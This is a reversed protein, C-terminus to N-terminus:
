FEYRATVQMAWQSEGRNQKTTMTFPDNVSYVMKGDPTTGAYNVFKRVQGGTGDSFGIEDIRGWSKKILNGVNFIDLSLSGKQKGFFGPVEQSLRVDFSNVFPSRSNNRGVVSGKSNRLASESEVISWFKAEAAVSSAAVTQGPLRFLVEGSGQGKPIYLLDNGAVGDGNADNNFTWSYPKGDRGEYFMGFSTKYKGFFAQSWNLNASFRNRVTYVSNAAVVENPNYVPRNAWQSFATSSTLPSVETANTRTYAVGWGFGGVSPRQLSLTVSDGGGLKTSEVITVDNFANNRQARSTPSVCTLGTTAGPTAGGAGWCNTSQAAANWFVQRGDVPNTATPAGLNLHRYALGQKTKTHLWEAGANLGYWPLEVDYALNMKWVSPQAVGPAIFDVNQRASAALAPQKNPDPNYTVANAGTCNNLTCEYDNVVVGTNQFPNAFWVTAAAGQFLGLGGRIQSKRKDVADFAYNFGVRPQLLSKGDPTYTNDYGFASSAVANAIPKDGLGISDMRLGAMVSLKRNITWTDQVFVGLNTFSMNAAADNLTRGAQPLQIRYASAKGAAFLAIPDAGQFTYQGKARRVFANFVDNLEYDVGAKIEHDGWVLNGAVYGNTTNTELRNFHRTEETGFRLTRNGTAAGAPSPDTFVLQVEPMDSKNLPVSLYDRKSLKVETSFNDTWDGFWQAVVSEISKATTYWRSDLSLTTASFGPAIPQAQETKTYRINARHNDNINWDLKLLTDKVTLQDSSPIGGIDIGYVNKAITRAQQIQAETIGVNTLNSGMTGFQPSDRNSKLEEYSAFFFLKDKLIPGGLTFGLTSDHFAPPEFYSNTTRNYRNGSMEKDRYVGYVSGKFENTGSKTVANINAGTYGAQTVDYNSVNVQVAQIADISIPQKITPLGNAELGFTDNIRVGDITLANYRTNQGGASIEGREKDTQALRPDTRAYDQLSRNLSAYADLEQRGLSTGTGMTTSNFKSATASGTTVVTELVSASRLRLEVSLTEALGLYVGTQFERGDGKNATISYPGGVRLGRALFRGEADATTTTSSGSETHLIVVTAGGAPRGDATLVQGSVAATTNQAMAPAAAVIAVAACLASLPFGSGFRNSM